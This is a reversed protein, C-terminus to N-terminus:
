VSASKGFKILNGHPDIVYLEIMGWPQIKPAQLNLGKATFEEFFALPNEVHIYCSTNEAIHPEDCLWFHLFFGDRKVMLYNEIQEALEFGLKETYFLRSENLDLSALVPSVSRIKVSM